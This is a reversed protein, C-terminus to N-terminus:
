IAKRATRELVILEAVVGGRRIQIFSVYESGLVFSRVLGICRGHFKLSHVCPMMDTIRRSWRNMGHASPPRGNPVAVPTREFLFIKYLKTASESLPLSARQARCTSPSRYDDGNPGFKPQFKLARLQM